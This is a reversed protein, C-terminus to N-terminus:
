GQSKSAEGRIALSNLRSGVLSEVLKEEIAAVTDEKTVHVHTQKALGVLGRRTLRVEELMKLAAERSQLARLKEILLNFDMPESKERKPIRVKKPRDGQRSQIASFFDNIEADSMAEVIEALQKLVRALKIRDMTM